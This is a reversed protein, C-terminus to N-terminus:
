KRAQELGESIKDVQTKLAKEAKTPESLGQFAAVADNISKALGKELDNPDVQLIWASEVKAGLGKAAEPQCVLEIVKGLAVCRMAEAAFRIDIVSDWKTSIKELLRATTWLRHMRLQSDSFMLLSKADNGAVSREVWENLLGRAHAPQGWLVAKQMVTYGGRPVMNFMRNHELTSLYDQYHRELSSPDDILIDLEMLMNLHKLRNGTTLESSSLSAKLSARLENLVNADTPEVDNGSVKKWRKSVVQQCMCQPGTFNCYQRAAKSVGSADLQVQEFNMLTAVRMVHGDQGNKVMIRAPLQVQEDGLQVTEYEVACRRGGNHHTAEFDPFQYETGSVTVKMGKGRYGVRMPQQPLEVEQRRLRANEGEYQYLINKLLQGGKGFLEMSEIQMDNMSVKLEEVERDPGHTGVALDLIQEGDAKGRLDGHYVRQGLTEQEAFMINEVPYDGYMLRFVGRRDLPKLHESAYRPYLAHDIILTQSNSAVSLGVPPMSFFLEPGHPEAWIVALAYFDRGVWYRVFILTNAYPPASPNLEIVADFRVTMSGIAVQEVDGPATELHLTTLFLVIVLRLGLTIYPRCM